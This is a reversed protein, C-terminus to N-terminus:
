FILRGILKLLQIAGLIFCTILLLVIFIIGYIWLKDTWRESHHQNENESLVIKEPFIRIYDIPIDGAKCLDLTNVEVYDQNTQTKKDLAKLLILSLDLVGKKNALIYASDENEGPEFFYCGISTPQEKYSKNLTELLEIADELNKNDM